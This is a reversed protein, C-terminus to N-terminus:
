RNVTRTQDVRELFREVIESRLNRLPTGDYGRARGDFTERLHSRRHRIDWTDWEDGVYPLLWVDPTESELDPYAGPFLESVSGGDSRRVAWRYWHQLQRELKAASLLLLRGRLEDETLGNGEAETLIEGMRLTEYERPEYRASMAFRRFPRYFAAVLDKRTLTVRLEEPADSSQECIVLQSGNWDLCYDPGEGEWEWSCRALGLSIAGLWAMMQPFPCFVSSIRFRRRHLRGTSTCAGASAVDGDANATAGLGEHVRLHLYM